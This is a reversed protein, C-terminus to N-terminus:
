RLFSLAFAGVCVVLLVAAGIGMTATRFGKWDQRSQLRRDEAKLLRPMDEGTFNKPDKAM